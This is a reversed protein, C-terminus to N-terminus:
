SAREKTFVFRQYLLSVLILAVGLGLFSLIRYVGQLTSLDLLFVKAVTLLLFGLSVFRLAKVQRWLGLILLGIAYLGWAASMTLDRAFQREMQFEAYKGTSYFDVIELNILWFILILGLFSAAPALRSDEARRLLAAGVLCCAASVGYTYLIWNLIPMGREQWRLVDVNLLLRVGVAALLLAGFYKLGPHPLRGYLWWVAAGELAWGLTIWQRDLQLPIALAVFGLAIAAFLALHNLRREAAARDGPRAVFTRQVGALAAVSLAALIVPLVGIWAKGWGDAVIRYLVLFFAPGALASTMWPLPRDKWLPAVSGSLLFPLALFTLYFASVAPLVVPLDVPHFYSFQWFTAFAASAALGLPVLGSWDRRVASVVLLMTVVALAAFLPWPDAGLEAKVLCAFLGALGVLNAGVVGAEDEDANAPAAARRAAVLSVVIALLLPVSLNRLLTEGLTEKLFWVQALLALALPGMVAVAPAREERTREIFLLMLGGLLVLFAWPPEGLGHAVLVLAFVGLGAAAALGSLELAQPHEELVRPAFRGALRSSGNLLVSLGLAALTPGWLAELSLGQTAWLPLTIATAVAGGALLAVRGRFLAVAMLAADLLALYGFLLPWEGAYARNGALLVAFLFPVVGGAAGARVLTQEEEDGALTPLLLYLLGFVLFALLGIAMKEPAMFRGFWGLEILLTGGFGMLVLTHWRKRIAVFLLGVNLVLIYSFLGLPRDVGTSLLVPTAFGGLLGLIATFIADHRIAVLGALLTVLTMLAFTLSLPFLGWRAHGAFFAIYLIAIGAGSVANATTAYGKRLGLEAWILGGVGAILLAAEQLPPTIYGNDYALKGLLAAAIVLTIGGAWAAGKLGLLSEWDFPPAAPTPPTAPAPPRPPRAPPVPAAPRAVPRAPVPPAAGGPPPAAPASTAPAPSAAPPTTPVPATAAAPAPTPPVAVPPAPATPPATLPPTSSPGSAPPAATRAPSPVRAEGREPGLTKLMAALRAELVELDARMNVVERNLRASRSLAVIALVPAVAALALLALGILVFFGEV